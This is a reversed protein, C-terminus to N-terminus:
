DFYRRDNYTFAYIDLDNFFHTFAYILCGKNLIQQIRILISHYKSFVYNQCFLYLYLYSIKFNYFIWIFWEFFIWQSMHGYNVYTGTALNGNWKTDTIGSFTRSSVILTLLLYNLTALLPLPHKISALTLKLHCSITPRISYHQATSTTPRLGGGKGFNPCKVNFTQIYLIM